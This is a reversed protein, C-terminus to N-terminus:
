VRQLYKSEDLIYNFLIFKLNIILNKNKIKM